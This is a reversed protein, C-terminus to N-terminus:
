WPRTTATLPMVRQWVSQPIPDVGKSEEIHTRSLLGTNVHTRVLAPAGM